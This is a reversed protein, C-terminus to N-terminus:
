DQELTFDLRLNTPGFGPNMQCNRRYSIIFQCTSLVLIWYRIYLNCIAASWTLFPILRTNTLHHGTTIGHTGSCLIVARCLKWNAPFYRHQIHEAKHTTTIHGGTTSWSIFQLM